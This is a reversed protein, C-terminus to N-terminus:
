FVIVDELRNAQNAFDSFSVMRNTREGSARLYESFEAEIHEPTSARFKALTDYGM